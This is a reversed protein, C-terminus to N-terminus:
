LELGTAVERAVLVVLSHHDLEIEVGEFPEPQEPLDDPSVMATDLVRMWPSAPVPLAFELPDKYANFGIWLLAGRSGMHLSTATTRSWAAWDPRGLEVGHWQQW